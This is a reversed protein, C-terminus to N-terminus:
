QMVESCNGAVADLSASSYWRRGAYKNYEEVPFDYGKHQPQYNYERRLSGTKLAAFRAKLKNQKKEAVEEYVEERSRKQKAQNSGM